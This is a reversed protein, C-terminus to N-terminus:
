TWEVVGFKRKEIYLEDLFVRYLEADEYDFDLSYEDFDPHEEIFEYAEKPNVGNEQEYVGVYENIIATRVEDETRGAVQLVYGFRETQCFYYYQLSAM